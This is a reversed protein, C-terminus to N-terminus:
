TFILKTPMIKSQKRWIGVEVIYERRWATSKYTNHRVKKTLMKSKVELLGNCQLTAQIKSFMPYIYSLWLKHFIYQALLSLISLLSSLYCSNLTLLEVHACYITETKFLLDFKMQLKWFPDDICFFLFFFSFFGFLKTQNMPEYFHIMWVLFM